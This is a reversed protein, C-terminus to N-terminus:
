AGNPQSQWCSATSRLPLTSRSFGCACWWSTRRPTQLLNLARLTLTRTPASAPPAVPLADPPEIKSLDLRFQLPSNSLPSNSECVFAVVTIVGYMHLMGFVAFIWLSMLQCADACCLQLCSRSKRRVRHLEALEALRSQTDKQSRIAHRESMKAALKSLSGQLTYFDRASISGCHQRLQTVARSVLLSHGGLDFFSDDVSTVTGAGLQEEFVDRVISQEATMSAVAPTPDGASSAVTPPRLSSRGPQHQDAQAPPQQLQHAATEATTPEQLLSRMAKGSTLQPIDDIVHIAAPIMYAALLGACAEKVRLGIGRDGSQPQALVIWGVLRDGRKDVVAQEVGHLPAGVELIVSEIESLEVRYGRIKVQQDIRGHFELEGSHNFRVLDGSRYM